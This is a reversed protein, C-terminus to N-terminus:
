SEREMELVIRRLERMARHARVKVAGVSEQCLDAIERYKLGQYRSLVLVERMPPSLRDLALRLTEQRGIDPLPDKEAPRVDPDHAMNEQHERDRRRAVNHDMCRNRVVRYLWTTFKSQGGFSRGYRIVRLFSDQTLDEAASPDGTLRYCLRYVMRHHRSFLAGVADLDGAQAARMLDEDTKEAELAATDPMRQKVVM